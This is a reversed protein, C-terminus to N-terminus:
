GVLGLPPMAGGSGNARLSSSPRVRCGWEQGSERENPSASDTNLAGQSLVSGEHLEDALREFGRFDAALFGGLNLVM